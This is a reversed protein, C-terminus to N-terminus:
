SRISPIAPEVITRKLACNNFTDLIRSITRVTKAGLKDLSLFAGGSARGFGIPSPPRFIRFAAPGRRYCNGKLQAHFEVLHDRLSQGKLDEVVM